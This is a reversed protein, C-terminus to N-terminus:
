AVEEKEKRTLRFYWVVMVIGILLAMTSFVIPLISDGTQPGELPVVPDEVLVVETGGPITYVVKKVTSAGTVTTTTTSTTDVEEVGLKLELTALKAMYSNDQSNGDLVVEVTILGSQGATLTGIGFYTEQNDDTIVSTDIAGVSDSNYLTTETGDLTYSITYTYAGEGEGSAETGDANKNELSDIVDTNLYFAATSDSANIYTVDFQITDGPMTSTITGKDASGDSEVTTGDYTINWSITQTKALANESTNLLGVVGILLALVINLYKIKM